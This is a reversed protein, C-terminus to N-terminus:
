AYIPLVVYWYGISFVFTLVYGMLVLQVIARVTGILLEKELKLKMWLSVGGSILVFIATLILGFLEIDAAGNM